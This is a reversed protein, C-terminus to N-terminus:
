VLICIKKEHAFGLNPSMEPRRVCVCNTTRPQPRSLLAGRGQAGGTQSKVEAMLIFARRAAAARVALGDTM